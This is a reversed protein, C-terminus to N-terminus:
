ILTEDSIMPMAAYLENIHHLECALPRTTDSFDFSDLYLLDLTFNNRAEAVNKLWHVSDGGIVYVKDSVHRRCRNVAAHDIDISVVRGGHRRSNVYRDFLVTSCGDGLWGDPNRMCGTEIIQVHRDIKDLHEFIAAFTLARQGL